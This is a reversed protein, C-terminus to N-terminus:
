QAKVCSLETGDPDPERYMAEDGKIWIERGFSGMYRSGSAAPTLTGVDISDGREFRLSPLETDFFTTVVENSSNGDCAWFVTDTPEALMWTAVMEAERRLYSQEVCAEVNETKWCEDRGSIWGRQTAKLTTEAEAAGADLGRAADLASAYTAAIREDLAGLRANSCVLQEASSEAKACDFSQAAAPSAILLAFLALRM